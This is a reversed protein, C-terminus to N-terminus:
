AAGGIYAAQLLSWSEKDPALILGGQSQTPAYPSGDFRAAYGGAEAHLLAGAAHDWPMLKYHLGYHLHGDVLLRHEHAACRYAFAGRTKATAAAIQARLPEAAMHWSVTGAMERLPAPKAVHLDRTQGNASLAWAGHGRLGLRWDKGIPDYIIGAVTEGKSTVAALVGFLPLGWAFNSTGDVPDIIIALDADAIRALLSRDKEVAEEGVFLASPFAKAAADRMMAEAREDADTVVDLPSTKERVGGQELARFRPLIEAEAAHAVIACLRNLDTHSFTM